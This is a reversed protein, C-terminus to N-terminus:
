RDPRPEPPPGGYVAMPGVPSVPRRFGMWALIGAILAVIAFLVGKRTWGPKPSPLPPGGYVPAPMREERALNRRAEERLRQLKEPDEM